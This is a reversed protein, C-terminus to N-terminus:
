GPKPGWDPEVCNGNEPCGNITLNSTIHRVNLSDIDMRYLDFCCYDTYPRDSTFVIQKGNPSFRPGVDHHSTQHTLPTLGTGDANMLWISNPGYRSQNDNFVVQKGDPSVDPCGGRLAEDTLRRKGSGDSNMRWIAPFLSKESGFYIKGNPAFKPCFSDYGDGTLQKMGTGDANMTWISATTAARAFVIKTGDYSYGAALDDAGADHTLQTLDDGNPKVTWIEQDGTDTARTNFLILSGDPKWSPLMFFGGDAFDTIRRHSSGDAAFVYLQFGKGLDADVVIPGNRGPFAAHAPGASWTLALLVTFLTALASRAPLPM